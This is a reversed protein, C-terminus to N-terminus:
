ASLAPWSPGIIGELADRVLHALAVVDGTPIVDDLRV